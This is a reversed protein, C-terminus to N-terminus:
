KNKKKSKRFENRKKHNINIDLNKTFLDKDRYYLSKKNRTTSAAFTDLKRTSQNLFFNPVPVITQSINGIKM